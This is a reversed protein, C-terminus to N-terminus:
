KIHLVGNTFEYHKNCIEAIKMRHSVIIVTKGVLMNKILEIMKEETEIDVNSTPEDLLYVNKDRILLGRILNIRQRQGTSVFVGREGLMTDFGDKLGDFWEGLGVAKIMEYLDSEDVPRGLTLNDKISMDFIETDQSIFVCDLRGFKTGNIHVNDTEIQGSIIDLLTTKGQGSEGSICVFDGREVYFQPIVIHRSIDQGDQQEVYTYDIGVASLQLFSDWILGWRKNDPEDVFNLKSATGKFKVYSRFMNCVARTNHVQQIAVTALIAQFGVDQLYYMNGTYYMWLFCVPLYMLTIVKFSIFATEDAIVWKFCANMARKKVEQMKSNMYELADMKQVTNINSILDVVLKNRNGEADAIEETPKIVFMNNFIIRVVTSLAFSLFFLFGFMFHYMGLCIGFYIIYIVTIPMDVVIKQYAESQHAVLKQIVGSIYGTNSQKLVSPKIRFLKNLYFHSVENEITEMAMETIADGVFESFEWILVFCIVTLTVRMFSDEFHKGVLYSMFYSWTCHLISFISTSLFLAFTLKKSVGLFVKRM